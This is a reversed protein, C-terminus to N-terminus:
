GSWTPPTHSESPGPRTMTRSTITATGFGSGPSISRRSSRPRTESIRNVPSTSSPFIRLAHLKQVLAGLSKPDKITKVEALMGAIPKIGAADAASEDMCAAYYDGLKKQVPDPNIAKESEELIRLLDAEVRKKM